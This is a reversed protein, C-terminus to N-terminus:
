GGELARGLLDLLGRAADRYEEPVEEDIKEELKRRLGTDDDQQLARAILRQTADSDLRCKIDAAPGRCRMPLPTDQLLPNVRYPSGERPEGFTVNALLDVEDTLWDITGDAEILMNDLKLELEQNRGNVRWNGIFEEYAWTDPWSAVEDTRRTLAALQALQQKIATIDIEGQGGNFDSSARVSEALAERTNGRLEMDSTLAFNAIWHVNSNRWEILRKSDVQDMEPLVTWRIPTETLNIDVETVLSGGLFDKVELFSNHRGATNTTRLSAQQFTETGVTLRALDCDAILDHSWCLPSRCYM